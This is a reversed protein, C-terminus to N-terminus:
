HVQAWYPKLRGVRGLRQIREGYSISVKRYSIMRNDCDLTPQVKIGFDVVVDIDLTVGNEIINTAVLFHKKDATGCTKM